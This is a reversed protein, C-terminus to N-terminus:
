AYAHAYPNIQGRADSPRADEPELQNSSEAMPSISKSTSAYAGPSKWTPDNHEPSQAKRGQNQM